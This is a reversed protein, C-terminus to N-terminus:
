TIRTSKSQANIQGVATGHVTRVPSGASHPTLTGGPIFEKEVEISVCPAVECTSERITSGGSTPYNSLNINKKAPGISNSAAERFNEM